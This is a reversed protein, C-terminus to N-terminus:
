EIVIYMKKSVGRGGAWEPDLFRRTVPHSCKKQKSTMNSWLVQCQRAMVRALTLNHLSLGCLHWPLLNWFHFKFEFELALRGHATHWDTVLSESESPTLNPAVSSVRSDARSQFHRLIFKHAGAAMEAARCGKFSCTRDTCGGSGHFKCTESWRSLVDAAGSVDLLMELYAWFYTSKIAGDVTKYTAAGGPGRGEALSDHRDKPLASIFRQLDWRERLGHKLVKLENVFNIVAHWRLSALSSSWHKLRHNVFLDMASNTDFFLHRLKDRFTPQKVITEIARLQQLFVDKHKMSDWVDHLVNDLGHKIGPIFLANPFLRGVLSMSALTEELPNWDEHDRAEVLDLPVSLPLLADRTLPDADDDLARAENHLHTVLDIRPTDYLSSEVGQDTCIGIVSSCYSRLLRPDAGIELTFQHLLAALKHRLKSHGLGLVVPLFITQEHDKSTFNLSLDDHGAAM